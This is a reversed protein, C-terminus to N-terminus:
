REAEAEAADRRGHIAELVIQTEGDRHIRLAGPAGHVAGFRWRSPDLDQGNALVRPTFTIRLTESGTPEFTRYEIRKPGYTVAVVTGDSGLIHNADAPALEPLAAMGDLLHPLYDFYSDSFWPNVYGIGVYNVARGDRSYKSCASYTALALAARAEAQRATDDTEAAWRALVSAYRATHSSMEKFCVDQERISPAGYRQTQGFRHLVWTLLAAVHELHRPVREPHRLIYRATEVPIHQNLNEHNPQVDEYYGSWRHNVLPYRVIWDLLADRVAPYRGGATYGLETLADFFRVPFIMSATYPDLVAGTRLNVRFPLPSREADGDAVHAAVTQALARAADLYRSEGTLKFLRIYALGVMCMKDVGSWEDTYEGDPTDDQTRPVNPWAWDGPTHYHLVRDVLLRVGNFAQRDGTYAYYRALTEVAYYANSGQNNQNRRFTGDENLKSTILYWPDAGFRTPHTPCHVVFNMSEVIIAHLSTWPLLRGEEDLVVEHDLLLDGSATASGAFVVGFLVICPICGLLAKPFM